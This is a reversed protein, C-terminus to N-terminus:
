NWIEINYVVAQINLCYIVQCDHFHNSVELYQKESCVDKKFSKLSECRFNLSDIVKKNM